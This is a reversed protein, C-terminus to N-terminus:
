RNMSMVVPTTVKAKISKQGYCVKAALGLRLRVEKLSPIRPLGDPGIIVITIM